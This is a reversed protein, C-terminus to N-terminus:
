CIKKRFAVTSGDFPAPSKGAELESRNRYLGRADREQGERFDGIGKHGRWLDKQSCLSIRKGREQYLVISFM